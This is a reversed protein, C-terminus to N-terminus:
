NYLIGCTTDGDSAEMKEANLKGTPWTLIERDGKWRCRLFVKLWPTNKKLEEM